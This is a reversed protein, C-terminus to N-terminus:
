LIILLKCKLQWCDIMYFEHLNTFLIGKISNLLYHLTNKDRLDYPINDEDENNYECCKSQNM